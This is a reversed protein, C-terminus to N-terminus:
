RPSLVVAIFAIAALVLGVIGFTAQIRLIGWGSQGSKRRRYDMALLPVWVLAILAVLACFVLALELWLSM